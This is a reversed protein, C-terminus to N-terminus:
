RPPLPPPQPTETLSFLQACWTVHLGFLSQLDLEMHLRRIYYVITGPLPLLWTGRGRVVHAKLFRGSGGRRQETLHWGGGGWPVVVGGGGRQWWSSGPHVNVVAVAHKPM